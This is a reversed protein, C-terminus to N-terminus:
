RYWLWSILYYSIVGAWLWSDIRDFAGGHGPILAGSDKAHALRKIMSEGLDGFVTLVGMVLGVLASAPATVASGPGAGLQWVLGFLWGFGIGFVIGGFYGEWTKKPSLRPSLLRRGFRKGFFYAGSDVLWVSPLVAYVWWEGSPLFRLSLLYSGIWGLYAIGAITIGFDVAAQERGREFEVLHFAMALLILLNLTVLSTNAQNFGDWARAVFLLTVGGVVLIASPKHGSAQFLQVYEWAAPIFFVLLMLLYLWGGVHITFMGIPILIIAALIRQAFSSM